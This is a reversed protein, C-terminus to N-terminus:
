PRGGQRLHAHSGRTIGLALGRAFALALTRAGAGDGSVSVGPHGGQRASQRGFSELLGEATPLMEQDPDLLELDIHRVGRELAGVLCDGLNAIGAEGLVGEIRIACREPWRVAWITSGEAPSLYVDLDPNADPISAAVYWRDPGLPRVFLGPTGSPTFRCQTGALFGPRGNTLGAADIGPVVTEPQSM